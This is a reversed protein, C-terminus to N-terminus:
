KASLQSLGVLTKRKHSKILYCAVKVGLGRITATQFTSKKPCNERDTFILCTQFIDSPVYFTHLKGFNDVIKVNRTM